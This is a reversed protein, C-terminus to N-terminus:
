LTKSSGELNSSVGLKASSFGPICSRISSRPTLPFSRSSSPGPLGSVLCFNMIQGTEQLVIRYQNQPPNNTKVDSSKSHQSECHQSYSSLKGHRTCTFVQSLVPAGAYTLSWSTQASIDMHM